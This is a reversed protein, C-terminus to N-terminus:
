RIQSAIMDEGSLYRIIEGIREDLEETYVLLYKVQTRALYSSLQASIEAYAQAADYNFQERQAQQQMSAFLATKDRRDLVVLTSIHAPDINILDVPWVKQVMGHQPPQVMEYYGKPNGAHPTLQENIFAVGNVPLGAEVCHQMVFSTGCRPGMATVIKM